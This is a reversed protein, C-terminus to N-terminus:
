INFYYISKVRIKKIHEEVEYGNPKGYILLIGGRYVKCIITVVKIFGSFFTTNMLTSSYTAIYIVEYNM